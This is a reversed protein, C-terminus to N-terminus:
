RTVVLKQTLSLSPALLRFFYVGSAVAVGRDDRGDWGMRHHGAPLREELVLRVRRGSVDFVELRTRTEATLGFAVTARAVMPNPTLPSLYPRPPVLASGPVDIIQNPEGPTPSFFFEWSDAGDPLRGESVDTTQPGYVRTDMPVNGNAISEFIGIEEGGASLKFNAHLPGQVLDEDCWVLLFGGPQLTTDPFMWKVSNVLDDTLYRGAFSV